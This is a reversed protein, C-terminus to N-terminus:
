ARVLNSCLFDAGTASVVAVNWCLACLVTDLAHQLRRVVGPLGHIRVDLDSVPVPQVIAPAHRLDPQETAVILSPTRPTHLVSLILPARRLHKWVACGEGRCSGARAVADPGPGAGGAGEAAGHFHATPAVGLDAAGVWCGGIDGHVHFVHERCRVICPPRLTQIAVGLHHIVRPSPGRVHLHIHRRCRGHLTHLEPLHVAMRGSVEAHLHARHAARCCRTRAAVVLCLVALWGLDPVERPETLTYIERRKAISKRGTEPHGASHRICPQVALNERRREAARGAAACLMVTVVGRTPGRRRRRGVRFAAHAVDLTATYGRSAVALLEADVSNVFPTPAVGEILDIRLRMAVELACGETSLLVGAADGPPGRAGRAETEDGGGGVWRLVLEARTLGETQGQM